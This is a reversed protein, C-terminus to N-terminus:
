PTVTVHAEYTSARIGISFGQVRVVADGAQDFRLTVPRPFQAVDTTCLSGIAKRDYPTVEALLGSVTVEAGDARTCSSSGTTTVTATFAVGRQVSAPMQLTSSTESISGVQRRWGSGDVLGDCASLLTFAALVLAPRLHRPHLM